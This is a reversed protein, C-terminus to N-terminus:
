GKLAAGAKAVPFQEHGCRWFDTKDTEAAGLRQDVAFADQGGEPRLAVAERRGIVAGVDDDDVGAAKEVAGLRFAELGDAFRKARIALDDDGPAQAGLFRQDAFRMGVNEGDGARMLIFRDDLGHMANQRRHM